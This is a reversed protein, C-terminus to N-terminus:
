LFHKIARFFEDKFHSSLSFERNKIREYLAKRIADKTTEARGLERCREAQEPSKPVGKLKESIKNNREPNEYQELLEEIKEQSYTEKWSKGKNWQEREGSEYQRRRTESSHEIASENHGWNNNIRSQHGWIYDRFHAGGEYDIETYEGCGCQCKPRIGNYSYDALLQEKSIEGHMKGKIVHKCLANYNEFHRDCYPCKIPLDEKNYDVKNTIEGSYKYTFGDVDKRKGAINKHIRDKLTKDGNCIEAVSSFRAVENGKLDYKIVEKKLGM